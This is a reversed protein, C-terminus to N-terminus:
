PCRLGTEYATGEDYHCRPRVPVSAGEHADSHVNTARGLIWLSRAGISGTAVDDAGVISALDSGFSDDHRSPEGYPVEIAGPNGLHGRRAIVRARSDAIFSSPKTAMSP